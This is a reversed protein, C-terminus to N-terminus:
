WSGGSRVFQSGNWTYRVSGIGGWPLLLPELSGDGAHVADMVAPQMRLAVIGAATSSTDLALRGFDLDRTIIVRAHRTSSCSHREAEGDLVRRRV